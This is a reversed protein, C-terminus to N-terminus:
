HLWHELETVAKQFEPALPVLKDPFADVLGDTHNGNPV